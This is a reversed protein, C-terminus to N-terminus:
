ETSYTAFSAKPVLSSGVQWKGGVITYGSSLGARLNCSGGPRARHGTYLYRRERGAEEIEKGVNMRTRNM